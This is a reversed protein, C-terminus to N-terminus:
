SPLAIFDSDSTSLFSERTLYEVVCGRKLPLRAIRYGARDFIEHLTSRDGELPSWSEFIVMPRAQELVLRGGQLVACENGETDIKILARRGRLADAYDDLRRVPVRVTM